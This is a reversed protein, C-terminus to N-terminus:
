PRGAREPEPSRRGRPCDAGLPRPTQTAPRALATASAQALTDFGPAAVPLGAAHPLALTRSALVTVGPAAAPM